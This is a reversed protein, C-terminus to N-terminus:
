MYAKMLNSVTQADMSLFENMQRHFDLVRTPNTSVNGRIFEAMEKGFQSKAVDAETIDTASHSWGVMDGVKETLDRAKSMLGGGESGDLGVNSAFDNLATISDQDGGIAADVIGSIGLSAFTSATAPHSALFSKLKSLAGIEATSVWAAVRPAVARGATVIAPVM